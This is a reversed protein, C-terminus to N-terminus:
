RHPSTVSASRLFGAIHLKESLISPLTSMIFDVMLKCSRLRPIYMLAFASGAQRKVAAYLNRSSSTSYGISVDDTFAIGARYAVYVKTHLM